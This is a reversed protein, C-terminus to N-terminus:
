EALLTAIIEMAYEYANENIIIDLYSTPNVRAFKQKDRIKKMNMGMYFRLENSLYHYTDQIKGNFKESALLEISEKLVGRQRSLEAKEKQYLANLIVEDPNKESMFAEQLMIASELEELGLIRCKDMYNDLIANNEKLGNMLSLLKANSKEISHSCFCEDEKKIEEKITAIKNIINAIFEEKSIKSESQEKTELRDKLIKNIVDEIKSKNKLDEKSVEIEDEQVVKGNKIVVREIKINPKIDEKSEKKLLDDLNMELQKPEKAKTKKSSKTKKTKPEEKTKEKILEELGKPEEPKSNSDIMIDKVVDEIKVQKDKKNAILDRVANAVQHALTSKKDLLIALLFMGEPTIRTEQKGPTGVVEVSETFYQKYNNLYGKIQSMTCGFMKAAERANYYEKSLPSIKDFEGKYELINELKILETNKM